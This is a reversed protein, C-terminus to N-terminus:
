SAINSYQYIRYTRLSTFHSKTLNLRNQHSNQSQQPHFNGFTYEPYNGSSSSSPFTAHKKKLQKRDSLPFVYEPYHGDDTKGTFDKKIASNTDYKDFTTVVQDRFLSKSYEQYTPDIPPIANDLITHAIRYEEQGISQRGVPQSPISGCQSWCAKEDPFRNQNGLCGRYIFDKCKNEKWDFYWSREIGKCIGPSRPLFCAKKDDFGPSVCIDRCVYM